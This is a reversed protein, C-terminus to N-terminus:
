GWIRSVPLGICGLRSKLEGLTFTEDRFILAAQDPALEAAMDVMADVPVDAFAASLNETLSDLRFRDAGSIKPINGLTRKEDRALGAAIAGICRAYFEGTQPLFLTDAYELRFNWRGKEKYVELNLDMKASSSPLEESQVEMHDFTTGELNVPRMSLIAHYMDNGKRGAMKALSELDARNHDLIGTVTKKIQEM